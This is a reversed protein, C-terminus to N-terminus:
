TRSVLSTRSPSAGGLQALHSPRRRCCRDARREFRWMVMRGIRHRIGAPGCRGRSDFGGFARGDVPAGDFYYDAAVSFDEAALAARIGTTDELYNSRRDLAWFAVSRGAAARVTNRALSEMAGAGEYLGPQTIVVRDRRRLRHARGPRPLAPLVALRVTRSPAAAQPVTMGVVALARVAASGFGAM